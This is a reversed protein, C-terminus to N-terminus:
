VDEFRMGGVIFLYNLYLVLFNRFKKNPHSEFFTSVRYNEDIEGCKQFVLGVDFDVKLM